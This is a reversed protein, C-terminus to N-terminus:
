VATGLYVMLVLLLVFGLIFFTDKNGWSLLRFKSRPMGLRYGRSEMSDVLDGARRFAGVSVPVLLTMLISAKERLTREKLVFGRSAQAKLIKEAEEFISPIFRLAVSIMLTIKQPSLRLLRFPAFFSELGQTLREPTTTFTLIATFSIFLIMRLASLVGRELGGSYLHISGVSIIRTGGTNFLIQFLAIFGILFLLPKVARMYFIFPIKTCSMILISFAMVALVGVFTNIMFIVVMFLLMATVKARPDLGHVWSGTEIYRGMIIKNRM